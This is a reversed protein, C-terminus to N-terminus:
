RKGQHRVDEGEVLFVVMEAINSAHDAARELYKACSAVKMGARVREPHEQMFRMSQDLVEGYTADVADDQALVNRALGADEAVFADLADLLMRNAAAAMRPLAQVPPPLEPRTSLEEAREALNVAEDGIRELDTVVKVTAMLFRLDRGVPQRLALIRFCMEDIALEDANNARDLVVVKQAVEGDQEVIARSAMGIMSECRAGMALLRGELGRLEAEFEQSTHGRMVAGNLM